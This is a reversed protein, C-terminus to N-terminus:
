SKDEAALLVLLAAMLPLNKLLGGFADLWHVPWMTGIVITYVALMLLMGVLVWRQRWRLLCLAGLLLDLTAASRGLLVTTRISFLEGPTARTIIEQPLLWGIVGSALWLAALSARLLSLAFCFQAPQHNWPPNFRFM